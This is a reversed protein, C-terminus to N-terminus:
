SFKKDLGAKKLCLKQEPMKKRSNSLFISFTLTCTTITQPVKSFPKRETGIMKELAKKQQTKILQTQVHPTERGALGKGTNPLKFGLVTAWQFYAEWAINM